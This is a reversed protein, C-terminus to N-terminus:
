HPCYNLNLGLISKKRGMLMGLYFAHLMQSM